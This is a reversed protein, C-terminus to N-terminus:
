MIQCASRLGTVRGRVPQLTAIECSNSGPMLRLALFHPSHRHPLHPAGRAPPPPKPSLQARPQASAQHHKCDSLYPTGGCRNHPLCPLPYAQFCPLAHTRTQTRHAHARSLISLARRSHRRTLHPALSLTLRGWAAYVSAALQQLSSIHQLPFFIPSPVSASSPSCSSLLLLLLLLLPCRDLSVLDRCPSVGSRKRM